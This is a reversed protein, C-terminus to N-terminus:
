ESIYFTKARTVKGKDDQYDYESVRLGGCLLAGNPMKHGAETRAETLRKLQDKIGTSGDTFRIRRNNLTIARVTVFEGGYEKSESFTWSLLAMREGVLTEKKDVSEFGDGLVDAATELEIGLSEFFGKVQGANEVASFDPKIIEVASTKASM